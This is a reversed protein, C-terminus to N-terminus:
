RGKKTSQVCAKSKHITDCATPHEKKGKRITRIRGGVFENIGEM